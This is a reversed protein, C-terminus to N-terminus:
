EGPTIELRQRLNCIGTTGSEQALRLINSLSTSKRLSLIELLMPLNVGTLCECNAQKLEKAVVNSPTGGFLDVLVLIGSGDDLKTLSNKIQTQLTASTDTESLKLAIIKKQKGIILESSKILAEGFNGHTVILIGIM